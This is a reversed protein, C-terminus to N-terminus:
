CDFGIFYQIKRKNFHPHYKTILEKEKSAIERRLAEDNHYNDQSDYSHVRYSVMSFKFNRKIFDIIQDTNSMPTKLSVSVKKVLTNFGNDFTLHEGLRRKLTISSAKGIYLLEENLFVFYLGCNLAENSLLAEAYTMKQLLFPDIM